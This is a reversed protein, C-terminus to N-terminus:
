KTERKTFHPEAALNAFAEVIPANATHLPEAQSSGLCAEGTGFAYAALHAAFCQAVITQDALGKVLDEQGQFSFLDEQANKPNPVGDASNIPKGGENARYKGAEDFHEFGFGIPDFMKHCANCSGSKAHLEEYRQRTTMSGPMPTPIQPVNEPPHLKQQCLLRLYAFMGRQTPSSGDTNAHSALFAGQALIGLGQTRMVAAGDTAPLSALTPETKNYFEALKKTPYTTPSTLLENLGGKQTILVQEIFTRTELAMDANVESFGPQNPKQTASVRTYGLYGEFFRQLALKGGPTALLQKALTVPDGLAGSEAKTLLEQSPTTGTYTYALETALEFPTLERANGKVEGIESRYVANPSQILGVTLWKIATKFDSKTKASNFFAVYKDTEAQTLPRRFLRKGYDKVFTTACAADAASACTVINQFDNGVLATAIAEATELLAGALQNGITSSSDNDFGYSSVTNAPLSSTWKGKLAPFIDNITNDFEFRTLLRLTATGNAPQTCALTLPPKEIMGGAGNGATNAGGSGNGGGPNSGGSPNVSGGGPNGSGAGPNGGSTRDEPGDVSGGSCASLAFLLAAGFGFHKIM